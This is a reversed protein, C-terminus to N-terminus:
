GAAFVWGDEMYTQVDGKNKLFFSQSLVFFHKSKGDYFVVILPIYFKACYFPLLHSHYFGDFKARKVPYM